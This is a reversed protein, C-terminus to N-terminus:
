YAGRLHKRHHGGGPHHSSSSFVSSFIESLEFLALLTKTSAGLFSVMMCDTIENSFSANFKGSDIAPLQQCIKAARRVIEYDKPEIPGGQQQIKKLASILIDIKEDLTRLSTNVTLNQVELTSVGDTPVAKTIQDVAIREVQMTELHFPIGAFVQTAMNTELQYVTLPLQKSNPDPANNLLLFLPAENLEMMERHIALCWGEPEAGGNVTYWGLLEHNAYVKTWLERKEATKAKNLVARGESMEYVAETADIISVELGVQVGFLFGIVPDTKAFKTGGM